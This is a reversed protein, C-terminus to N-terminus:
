WYDRNPRVSRSPHRRNTERNQIDRLRLVFENNFKERLEDNYADADVKNYAEAKMGVLLTREDENIHVGGVGELIVNGVDADWDWVGPDGQTRTDFLPMRYAWLDVVVDVSPIPVLRLGHSDYDTLIVRPIGVTDEWGSSAMPRLGYDEFYVGEEYESVTMAFLPRSPAPSQLRARTIRIIRRVDNEPELLADNASVTLDKWTRTDYFYDARALRSLATNLYRFLDSDDWLFPEVKDSTESRFAEFLERLTM